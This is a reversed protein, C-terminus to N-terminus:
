QGQERIKEIEKYEKKSFIRASKGEDQLKKIVVKAEEEDKYEKFLGDQAWSKVAKEGEKKNISGVYVKKENTPQNLESMFKALDEETIYYMCDEYDGDGGGLLIKGGKDVFMTFSHQPFFRIMFDNEEETLKRKEPREPVTWTDFKRKPFREYESILEENLFDTYSKINKM